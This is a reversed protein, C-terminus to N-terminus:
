ENHARPHYKLYVNKYRNKMIQAYVQTSSIDAHGLMEQIDKLQAGNELLHAAFSHRLTHPTTDADINAQTAYSKIIKWFGQRTLRKGNMNIFLAKESVELVIAARVQEIYNTLAKLAEPYMPIIRTSKNNTCNIIGLNLNVDNINLDILESVRIGTAYLVELMAKDRCGKPANINPSNLLRDVEQGTLIKPLKKEAKEIKLGRAPNNMAYGKIMLFQYFSRLSSVMRTLTSSSKGAQRLHELYSHLNFESAQSVDTIGSKALYEMFARIDRMYSELTNSSVDKNVVLYSEYEALYKTM